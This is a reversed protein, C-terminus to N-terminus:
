TDPIRKLYKEVKSTNKSTGTSDEEHQLRDLQKAMCERSITARRHASVKPANDEAKAQQQVQRDLAMLKTKEEAFFKMLWEAQELKMGQFAAQLSTKCVKDEPHAPNDTNELAALLAELKIFSKTERWFARLKHFQLLLTMTHESPDQAQCQSYSQLIIALIMNILVLFVLMLYLWYWMVLFIVPMGSPLLGNIQSRGAVDIYFEFEGM